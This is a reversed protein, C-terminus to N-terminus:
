MGCKGRQGGHKTAEKEEERKMEVTEQLRDPSPELWSREPHFLSFCAITWTISLWQLNYTSRRGAGHVPFFFVCLTYLLHSYLRVPRTSTKGEHWTLTVTLRSLSSGHSINSKFHSCQLQLQVLSVGTLSQRENKVWLAIDFSQGSQYGKVFSSFIFKRFREETLNHGNFSENEQYSCFKSPWRRMTFMNEWGQSFYYTCFEPSIVNSNYWVSISLNFKLTIHLIDNGRVEMEETPSLLDRGTRMVEFSPLYHVTRLHRNMRPSTHRTQYKWSLQAIQM